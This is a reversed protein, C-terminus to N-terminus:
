ELKTAELAPATTQQESALRTGELAALALVTTQESDRKTGELVATVVLVLAIITVVLVLVTISLGLVLVAITVVLALAIGELHTIEVQELDVRTGELVALVVAVIPGALAVTEALRMTAQRESVRTVRIGELVVIELDPSIGELPTIAQRESARTEQIGELDAAAESPMTGELVPIVVRDSHVRTEVLPM